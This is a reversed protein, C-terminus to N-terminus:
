TSELLHELVAQVGTRGRDTDKCLATTELEQLDVVIAMANRHTRRTRVKYAAAM